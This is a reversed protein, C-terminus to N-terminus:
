NAFNLLDMDSVAKFVIRFINDNYSYYCYLQIKKKKMDCFKKKMFINVVVVVVVVVVLVVVVVIIIVVVTIVFLLHFIRFFYSDGM